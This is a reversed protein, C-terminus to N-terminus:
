CSSPQILCPDYLRRRRQINLSLEMNGSQGWLSSPNAKATHRQASVKDLRRPTQQGDRTPQPWAQDDGARDNTGPLQDRGGLDAGFSAEYQEPQDQDATHDLDEGLHLNLGLHNSM